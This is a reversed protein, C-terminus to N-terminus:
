RETTGLARMRKMRASRARRESDSINLRYGRRYTRESNTIRSHESHRVVELNSIRNDTKIGNIHHVDEDTLLQRGLHKEMVFRHRKVRIQKGDVWVRGEVYGRSNLWWSEPKANHGGNNAWMCPRSCYKSTSRPPRFTGGCNPCLRDELNRNKRGWTDTLGKAPSKAKPMMSGRLSKKQKPTAM